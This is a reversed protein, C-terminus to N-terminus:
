DRSAEVVFKLGDVRKKIVKLGLQQVTNSIKNAEYIGLKIRSAEMSDGYIIKNVTENNYKGNVFNRCVENIDTGGIVLKGGHRMKKKCYSLFAFIEDVHIHDLIEPAYIEECEADDAYEDFNRLNCPECGENGSLSLNIYGERAKIDVGLQIKM